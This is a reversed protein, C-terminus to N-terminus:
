QKFADKAKEAAQQLNSKAQDSKGEAQQDDDGTAQGLKEEAKGSAKGAMEQAKAKLKDAFGVIEGTGRAPAPLERKRSSDRIANGSEARACRGPM